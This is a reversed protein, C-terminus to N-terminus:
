RVASGAQVTREGAQCARQTMAPNSSHNLQRRWLATNQSLLRAMAVMGINVTSAVSRPPLCRSASGSIAPAHLENRSPMCRTFGPAAWAQTLGDVLHRWGMAYLM